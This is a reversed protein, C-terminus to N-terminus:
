VGDGGAHERPPIRLIDNEAGVHTQTINLKRFFTVKLNGHVFPRLARSTVVQYGHVRQHSAGHLEAANLGGVYYNIGRHAAWTDLFTEPGAFGYGQSGPDIIAYFGRGVPMIWGDDALRGLKNSLSPGGGLAAEAEKRTFAHYGRQLLGRIYHVGTYKMPHMMEHIVHFLACSLALCNDTEM